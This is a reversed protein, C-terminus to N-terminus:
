DLDELINTITANSPPEEKPLWQICVPCTKNESLWTELCSACFGHKCAITVRVNPDDENKYLPEICIPCNENLCKTCSEKDVIPAVEDVNQVGVKHYGITDCLNSLYTYDHTWDPDDDEETISFDTYPLAYSAWLMFITPHHVMMHAMLDTIRMTNNCVPCNTELETPADSTPPDENASEYETEDHPVDEQSEYEHNDDGNHDEEYVEDITNLDDDQTESM